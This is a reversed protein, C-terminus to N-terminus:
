CEIGAKGIVCGGGVQDAGRDSVTDSSWNGGGCAGAIFGKSFSVLRAERDRASGSSM